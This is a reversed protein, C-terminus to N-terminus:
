KAGKQIRVASQKKNRVTNVEWIHYHNNDKNQGKDYDISEVLQYDRYIGIAYQQKAESHISFYVTDSSNSFLPLQFHFTTPKAMIVAGYGDIRDIEDFERQKETLPPEARGKGGRYAKPM